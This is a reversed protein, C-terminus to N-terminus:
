KYNAFILSDTAEIIRLMENEECNNANYKRYQTNSHIHDPVSKHRDKDNHSLIDDYDDDDRERERERERDRICM